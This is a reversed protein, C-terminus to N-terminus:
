IGLEVQLLVGWLNGAGRADPDGDHWTYNLASQLKIRHDDVYYSYGAWAEESREFMGQVRTAPLFASYRAVVQSRRGLMRGAESTIGWGENVAVAPDGSLGNVFPSGKAFRHDVENQWSWGKHKFLMDAFCTNITRGKGDPFFPGMQARIRRADRDTSFAAALSLKPHPERVLDGEAYDGDKGTFRGFPLWELRATYCLGPTGIATSRGEGQAIAVRLRLVQTRDVLVRDAFLGLDRDLTFEKNALPREPLELESSSVLAERGGPLKGQGFGLTTNSSIAYSVVADLLPSPGTVGDGIEQDRESLGLQVKYRLRPSVAYGDFKLRFRRVAIAPVAEGTGADVMVSARDQMRFRFVLQFTSDRTVEVGRKPDQEIAAGARAVAPTAMAQLALAILLTTSTRM